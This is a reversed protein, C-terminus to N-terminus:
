APRDVAVDGKIAHVLRGALAANSQVIQDALSRNAETIEEALPRNDVYAHEIAIAFETAFNDLEQTIARAIELLYDRQRVRFDPLLPLLKASPYRFSM